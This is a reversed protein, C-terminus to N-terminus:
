IAEVRPVMALKNKINELAARMLEHEKLVDAPQMLTGNKAYFYGDGDMLLPRCVRFLADKALQECEEIIAQQKM